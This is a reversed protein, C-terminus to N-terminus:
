SISANHEMSLDKTVIKHNLKYVLIPMVGLEKALAIFNSLILPRVYGNDTAKCQVLWVEGAKLAILDAPSHSGATRFVCFGRKILHLKVQYEFARGKNYNSM